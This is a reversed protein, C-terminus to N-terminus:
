HTENYVSLNRQPPNGAVIGTLNSKSTYHQLSYGAIRFLLTMIHNCYGSEGAPCRYKAFINDCNVKNRGVEISKRERKILAKCKQRVYLIREINAAFANVASLYGEEEFRKGRDTRKMMASCNKGRKIRHNNIERINFVLM